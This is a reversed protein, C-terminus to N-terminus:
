LGGPAFQELFPAAVFHQVQHFDAGGRELGPIQIGGAAGQILGDGVDFADIRVVIGRSLCAAEPVLFAFLFELALGIFAGHDIVIAAQDVQDIAIVTICAGSEEIAQQLIGEGLFFLVGGVKGGQDIQGTPRCTQIAVFAEGILMELFVALKTGVARDRSVAVIGQDHCFGAGGRAFQGVADTM